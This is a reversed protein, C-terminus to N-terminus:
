ILDLRCFHLGDVSSSVLGFVGGHLGLAAPFRCVGGGVGGLGVAGGWARVEAPQLRRVCVTVAWVLPLGGVGSGSGSGGHGGVGVRVREETPRLRVFVCTRIAQALATGRQGRGGGSAHCGRRRKQLGVARGRERPGCGSYCVCLDGM